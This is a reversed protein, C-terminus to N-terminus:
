VTPLGIILVFENGYSSPPYQSSWSNRFACSEVNGQIEYYERIATVWSPLIFM